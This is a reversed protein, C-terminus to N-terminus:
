DALGPTDPTSLTADEAPSSPIDRVGQRRVRGRRHPETSGARGVAEREAAAGLPGQLPRDLSTRIALDEFCQVFRNVFAPTVQRLAIPPLIWDSETLYEPRHRAEDAALIAQTHLRLGDEPYSGM